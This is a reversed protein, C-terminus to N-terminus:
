EKGYGPYYYKLFKDSAEENSEIYDLVKELFFDKAFSDSQVEELAVELLYDKKVFTGYRSFCGPEIERNEEPWESDRVM